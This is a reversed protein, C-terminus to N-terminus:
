RTTGEQERYAQIKYGLLKILYCSVLRGYSMLSNTNNGSDSGLDLTEFDSLTDYSVVRLEATFTEIATTTFLEETLMEFSVTNGHVTTESFVAGVRTLRCM